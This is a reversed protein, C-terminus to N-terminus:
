ENEKVESKNKMKDIKRGLILIPILCSSAIGGSVYITVLIRADLLMPLVIIGALLFSSFIVGSIMFLIWVLNEWIILKNIEHKADIDALSHKDKDMIITQLLFTKYRNIMIYNENHTNIRYDM